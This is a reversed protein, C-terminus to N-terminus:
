LVRKDPRPEVILDDKKYAEFEQRELERTSKGRTM